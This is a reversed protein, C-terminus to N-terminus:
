PAGPLGAPSIVDIRELLEPRVTVRLGAALGDAWAQFGRGRSDEFLKERTEKQKEADTAHRAPIIEHLYLVDWGWITIGPKSVDGIEHITFALALFEPDTAGETAAYSDVFSLKAGRTLAVEEAIEHFQTVSAVKAAVARARIEEAM